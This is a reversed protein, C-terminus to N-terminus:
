ISPNDIIFIDTSSLDALDGLDVIHNEGGSESGNNDYYLSAQNNDTKALFVFCAENVASTFSGSTRYSDADTGALTFLHDASLNGSIGYLSTGADFLAGDFCISDENSTFDTISDGMDGGGYLSTFLFRDNGDGGTMQDSGYGGFLLDDGAGGDLTDNGIGGHLIDNGGLGSLYDQGENGFIKNAAENGTIDDGTINSGVVNEIGNLIDNSEIITGGDNIYTKATGATETDGLIIETRLDASESSQSYDVTDEGEGGTITDSGLSGLFIDNGDM